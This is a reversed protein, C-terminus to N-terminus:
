PNIRQAVARSAAAVSSARVIACPEVTKGRSASWGLLARRRAVCRAVRPGALMKAPRQGPMASSRPAADAADVAIGPWCWPAAPRAGPWCAHGAGLAIDRSGFLQSRAGAPTASCTRVWSRSPPSTPRVISCRRGVAIRGLSLRTVSNMPALRPPPAPRRVGHALPGARTTSARAPPEPRSLVVDHRAGDVAVYTVHRGFPPRGSGSRPSTSSSTTGHVDEGMEAPAAHGGSSLVLVPCGVDLGATCSPTASASRGCGAPTSRSRSSRSGPSTSTGSARTTATCAARTSAPSRAAPDRADAPAARGPRAGRRAPSACRRHERGPRALALQAGHRRAARAAAREAWLPLTLGGTSHASLSSTTTATASSSGTGRRTSRPSTSASTPSTTPTQHERLSRGYKRLDLAYFDYGRDTWWEAYETQFFYDAFGHVHLVARRPRTRSPARRSVLRRSSAARRTTPRCSRDTEAIYPEGLVDSGTAETRRERTSRTLGRRGTRRPRGVLGALLGVDAATEPHWQVAVCFRDGPAEM